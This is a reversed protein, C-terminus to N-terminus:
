GVSIKAEPMICDTRITDKDQPKHRHLLMSLGLSVPGVRGLYMTFSLALKSWFTLRSTVDASLGVTAFASTSEFLADIGNIPDCFTIVCTTLIITLIAVSCIALSRYVIHQSVRHHQIVTYSKNHLVSIVTFLLVVFTTTKIGGGTSGPSAGIFMFLITVIKTIDLESAIHVSSFGATRASASQFFSANIKAGLSLGELTNHDELFFFLIAGVLLLTASCYIVLKSQLSLRHVHDQHLLHPRIKAYFIDSIVVFGLGGVVLLTGVTICVLPDSVYPILSRGPDSLGLIDFGANCFASIATFVSIWVGYPGYIPVFRIMLLLAGLLECSFTFGLTIRILHRILGSEGNTNEVALRLEKLGMKRRLLLTVGTTFTVLGLGGVQILLIIILQGVENWHTWTDFPSLGTVCTASTAVFLADIPATFSGSRSCFPFILLITGTLIVLMFSLVILRIPPTNRFPSRIKSSM